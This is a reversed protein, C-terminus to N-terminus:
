RKVAVLCFSYGPRVDEAAVVDLGGITDIWSKTTDPTLAHVHSPDCSIAECYRYDPCVIVMKGGPKLVRRWERVAKPIDMIHELLHKAVVADVQCDQFPTLETVDCSVEAKSPHWVNAGVGLEGSPRLDVGVAREDFKQGGCGLDLVVGGALEQELHKQVLATETQVYPVYGDPEEWKDNLTNNVAKLGHKKVLAGNIAEAHEKSDWYAGHVRRGTTAYHHILFTRRCVALKYGAQRLRISYDLDDGGPLQEDLLGVKEVAERKLLLCMGSLKVTEVNPPLGVYSANQFGMVKNSMPGVAGIKEDLQFTNLMKTLWGMDQDVIQLDDNMLCMYKAESNELCWKIGANAGGMWGKNEPMQIVQLHPYNAPKWLTEPRGNNVLVIRFPEGTNRLISLLCAQLYAGSEYTVIILDVTPKARQASLNDKM